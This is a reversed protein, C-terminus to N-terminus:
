RGPLEACPVNIIHLLSFRLKSMQYDEFSQICAVKCRLKEVSCLLQFTSYLFRSSSKM